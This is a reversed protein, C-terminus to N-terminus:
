DSPEANVEGALRLAKLKAVKAERERQEAELIARAAADTREAKERRIDALWGPPRRIRM